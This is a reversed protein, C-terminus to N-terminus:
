GVDGNIGDFKIVFAKGNQWYKGGANAVSVKGAFGYCDEEIRNRVSDPGYDM